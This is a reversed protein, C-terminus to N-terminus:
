KMKKKSRLLEKLEEPDKKNNWFLLLDIRNDSEKVRYYLTTQRSVRHLKIKGKLVDKGVILGSKLDEIVQESLNVFSIVEKSTWKKAIFKIEDVYSESAEVTWYIKM